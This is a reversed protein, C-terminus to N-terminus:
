RCLASTIRSDLKKAYAIINALLDANSLDDSYRIHIVATCREFALDVVPFGQAQAFESNEGIDQIPERYDGLGELIIGYANDAESNTKYLFITVGGSPHGNVEFPQYIEDEADPVNQFMKPPTTTEGPTFSAPLDGSQFLLSKDFAPAQGGCGALLLMTAILIVTVTKDIKNMQDDGKSHTRYRALHNSGATTTPHFLCRRMITNNGALDRGNLAIIVYLSNDKM